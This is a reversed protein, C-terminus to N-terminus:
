IVEPQVHGNTLHTVPSYHLIDSQSKTPKFSFMDTKALMAAQSFFWNKNVKM